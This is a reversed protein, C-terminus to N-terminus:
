ISRCLNFLYRNWYYSNHYVKAVGVPAAKYTVTLAGGCILSQSVNMCNNNSNKRLLTQLTRQLGDLVKLTTKRDETIEIHEM